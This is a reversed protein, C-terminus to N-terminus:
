TQSQLGPSHRVPSFLELWLSIIVACHSRASGRPVLSFYDVRLSEQGVGPSLLSFYDGLLSEQGVGPSASLFLRWATVGPRGGPFWLSIIVACHSRASGRPLLSFYDGRLSEQGVGPFWHYFVHLSTATWPLLRGPYYQLFM